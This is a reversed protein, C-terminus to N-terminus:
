RRRIKALAKWPAATHWFPASLQADWIAVGVSDDRVIWDLHEAASNGLWNEKDGPMGLLLRAANPGAAARQAAYAQWTKGQAGIQEYGMSTIGDVLPFLEKWWTQNPANWQYAFSDVTLQKDLGHLKGSLARVFTVFADRADDFQGNGELDIDVGDLGLRETEAVIARVFEEPHEAFGSRALSWDWSNVSNYVCLMVRIGHAHAWDRLEVITADSIAGYKPTKELGGESTPLWFQLALHTLGDKPGVGDFDEQLRARCKEIAYPPVWTLVMRASPPDAHLTGPPILAALV